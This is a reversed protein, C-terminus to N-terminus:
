LFGAAVWRTRSRNKILSWRLAASGVLRLPPARPAPLLGSLLLSPLYWLICGSSFFRSLLFSWCGCGFVALMRCFFFPATNLFRRSCIFSVFIAQHVHRDHKLKECFIFACSLFIDCLVPPISSFTLNFESSMVLFLFSTMLRSLSSCLPSQILFLCTVPAFLLLFERPFSVTPASFVSSPHGGFSTEYRFM